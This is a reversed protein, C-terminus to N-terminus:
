SQQIPFEPSPVQFDLLISRGRWIGHSWTVNNPWRLSRVFGIYTDEDGKMYDKLWSQPTMTLYKDYGM